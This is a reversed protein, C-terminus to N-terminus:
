RKKITYSLFEFGWLGGDVSTQKSHFLSLKDVTADTFRHDIKNIQQLFRNICM